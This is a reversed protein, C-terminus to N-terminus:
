GRNCYILNDWFNKSLIKEEKNDLNILKIIAECLYKQGMNINNKIEQTKKNPLQAGHVAKSRYTYLEKFLNAIEIKKTANKGLLFAARIQIKYTLENKSDDSIFLSEIAIGLEIVQNILDKRIISYCLRELPLELKKKITTDLSLFKNFVQLMDETFSINTVETPILDFPELTHDGASNPWCYLWPEPQWWFSLPIPSSAELLTLLRCISILKDRMCVIDNKNFGTNKPYERRCILASMPAIFSGEILSNFLTGRAKRWKIIDLPEGPLYLNEDVADPMYIAKQYSDPIDKFPLLSISDTIKVEHMISIGVIALIFVGPITECQIYKVVDDYVRLEDFHDAYAILSFPILLDISDSPSIGTGDHFVVGIKKLFNFDPENQLYKRLSESNKKSLESIFQDKDM